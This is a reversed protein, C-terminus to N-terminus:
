CEGKKLIILDDLKVGFGSNEFLQHTGMKSLNSLIINTDKAYLAHETKLLGTQVLVDNIVIHSRSVVLLEPHTANL